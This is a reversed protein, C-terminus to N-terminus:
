VVFFNDDQTVTKKKEEENTNDENNNTKVYIDKVEDYIINLKKNNEKITLDDKIKLRKQNKNAKNKNWRKKDWECLDFDGMIPMIPEGDKVIRVIGKFRPIELLKTYDFRKEKKTDLRYNEEKWFPMLLISSDRKYSFVKELYEFEGFEKSFLQADGESGLNLIIKNRCTELVINKFNHKDEHVLQETTQLALVTACRFSRGIALLREFDPNIYRPFEDIYLFHPTRTRETGPRRFVAQQLHMMIFQGFADGLKGLNGMATNVILVGGKELHEDLKVDSKGILVRQLMSNGTIDELQLRLGLTFQNIKDKNQGLVEVLFYQVLATTGEKNKLEEVYKMLMNENRLVEVMDMITANNGKIKKVLLATNRAAIEQNLRFFAEQKGFLSRLVTRMIEAVTEPDGEMPNFCPTGPDIPNIYVYPIKLDRCMAAVDDAFDGKPEIVTVGLKEGQAIAKLDQWIMPKLVRSSKGTGITGVVITHLYRDIHKLVVPKNQYKCIEIDLTNEKKIEPHKGKYEPKNRGQGERVLYLIIGFSIVILLIPLIKALNSILKIDGETVWPNDKMNEIWKGAKSYLMYGLIVSTATLIGAVGTIYNIFARYLSNLIFAVVGTAISIFIYIPIKHPNAYFEIFGIVGTITSITGLIRAIVLM